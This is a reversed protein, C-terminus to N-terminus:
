QEQVRRKPDGVTRIIDRADPEVREGALESAILRIMLKNLHEVRYFPIHPEGGAKGGVGSDETLFVYQTGTLLAATRMFFETATTHDPDSCIAAVPYIVVGRKRLRDMLKLTLEAHEKHPPADAVWFLVRACNGDRWSLKDAEALGAHVAEPIDGGGKASQAALNKHFENLNPTFDFTRTLYSDARDVEDRYLVLAYRQHVEQQFRRHVTAAINKLEAQLYRIQSGMSATTDLVIALDLQRPRPARFAPLRVECKGDAWRATQTVPAAEDDPSVAVTVEAEHGLGDWSDLVIVRGDTRTLLEVWREGPATVRVRRNGAPRGDSGKVTIELRRGLLRAPLDGALPSQSIDRLFRRYPGPDLNDDFSGATLVGSQLEGAPAPDAFGQAPRPKVKSAAKDKREPPPRLEDRGAADRPDTVEGRPAPPGGSDNAAGKKCGAAPLVALAGLLALLPLTRM